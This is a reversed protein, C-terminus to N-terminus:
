TKNEKYILDTFQKWYSEKALKEYEEKTLQTKLKLAAIERLKKEAKRSENATTTSISENDDLNEHLVGFRTNM